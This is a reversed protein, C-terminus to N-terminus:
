VEKNDQKGRLYALELAGAISRGQRSGRINNPVLDNVPSCKHKKLMSGSVMMRCKTCKWM